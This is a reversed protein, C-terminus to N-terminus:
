TVSGPSTGARRCFARIQRRAWDDHSTTASVAYSGVSTSGTWGVHKKTFLAADDYTAVLDRV